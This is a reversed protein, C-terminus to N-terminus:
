AVAREFSRMMDYMTKVGRQRSGNGAGRVAKATMVFEGDSLMAPVDDSTETGPGSVFGNRRPFYDASMEGGGAAYRVPQYYPFPQFQPQQLQYPSQTVYPNTYEPGGSLDAIQYRAQEEPTMDFYRTQGEFADYPEPPPPTDFMGAGYAVATGAAALPGYRSIINPTLDRTALQTAEASGIGTKMLEGAKSAIDASTPMGRSPSLYNRYFEGTTEATKNAGRILADGVDTDMFQQTLTRTDPVNANMTLAQQSPVLNGGADLMVGADPGVPMGTQAARMAAEQAAQPNILGDTQAKVMSQARSVDQITSPDISNGSGTTDSVLTGQPGVVPAGVPTGSRFLDMFDTGAGKVGSTFGQSFSSGAAARAQEVSLGTQAAIQEASLGLQALKAARSAQLGGQIGSTLGGVAGGILASKFADKLDGGQILTGIGSGIAGSAITGLGPALMNLAIPIIIPAAKKLIKGVSKVAKTVGRVLKKLFFEPLGTDPNISNAGSGVIYSEPDEIGALRMEAFILEQVEPNQKLIDAPVVLEGPTMHAILEDGSRGFGQLREIATALGGDPMMPEEETIPLSGIGGQTDPMMPMAAPPMAPAGAGAMSLMQEMDAAATAM